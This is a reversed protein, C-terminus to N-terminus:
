HISSQLRRLSSFTHRGEANLSSLGAFNIDTISSSNRQWRMQVAWSRHSLGVHGSVLEFGLSLSFCWNHLIREARVKFIELSKHCVKMTSTSRKRDGSVYSSRCRMMKSTFIGTLTLTVPCLLPAWHAVLSGHIQALAGDRPLGCFWQTSQTLAMSTKFTKPPTFAM